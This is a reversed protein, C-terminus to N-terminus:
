NRIPIEEALLWVGDVQEYIHFNSEDVYNADAGIGWDIIAGVRGDSLVRADRLPFLAIMEDENLPVAADLSADLSGDDDLDDLDDLLQIVVEDTMTALLRPLDGANYCATFQKEVETIEALTAADLSAGTPLDQEDLNTRDGATPTAAQLATIEDLSRPEVTCYSPDIPEPEGIPTGRPPAAEPTGLLASSIDNGGPMPSRPDPDITLVMARTDDTNAFAYISAGRQVLIQDGANLKVDRSDYATLAAAQEDLDLINAEIAGGSGYISLTGALVSVFAAGRDGGYVEVTEDKTWPRENFELWADGEPLDILATLLPDIAVGESAPFSHAGKGVFAM